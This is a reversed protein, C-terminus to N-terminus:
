KGTDWMSSHAAPTTKLVEPAAPIHAAWWWWLRMWVFGATWRSCWWRFHGSLIAKLLFYLYRSSNIYLINESFHKRTIGTQLWCWMRRMSSTEATISGLTGTMTVSTVSPPTKWTSSRIDSLVPARGALWLLFLDNTCLYAAIDNRWVMINVKLLASSNLMISTALANKLHLESSPPCAFQTINM